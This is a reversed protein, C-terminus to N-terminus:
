GQATRYDTPTIGERKKFNRTLTNVNTFGVDQAIQSVTLDTQLLLEKAKEIRCTNMYEGVPMQYKDQFMRTLKQVSIGTMECILAVNLNQDSLNQRIYNTAIEVYDTVQTQSSLRDLLLYIESAAEVLTQASQASRLREAAQAADFGEFSAMRTGEILHNRITELRDSALTINDRLPIVHTALLSEAMSPIIQYKRALIANLLTQSQRVFDGSLASRMGRKMSDSNMVHVPSDISLAFRHLELTEQYAAPLARYTGLTRSVMTYLVIQYTEAIIENAQTAIDFISEEEEPTGASTLAAIYTNRNSCFSLTYPLDKILKSVTTSIFMNLYERLATGHKQLLTEDTIEDVFFTIVTYATESPKLQADLVMSETIRDPESMQLIRWLAMEQKQADFKKKQEQFDQLSTCITKYIDGHVIDGKYQAPLAEAMSQINDYRRRSIKYLYLYGILLEAIMMFLFAFTILRLPQNYEKNRLAVLLTYDEYPRYMCTVPENALKEVDSSNSWSFDHNFATPDIAKRYSSIAVDDNFLTCIAANSFAFTDYIYELDFTIILVGIPDSNDDYIRCIGSPQRMTANLLTFHPEDSSQEYETESIGTQKLLTSLSMSAILGTDSSITGDSERVLYIHGISSSASVFDSFWGAVTQYAQSLDEPDCILYNRFPEGTSILEAVMGADHFDRSIRTSFHEAVQDAQKRMQSRTIQYVGAFLLIMVLSPIILLFLYQRIERRYKKFSMGQVYKLSPLRM